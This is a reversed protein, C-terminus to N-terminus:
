QSNTCFNSCEKLECIFNYPNSCVIDNWVYNADKLKWIELCHEIKGANDPQPASFYTFNLHKGTSLWVFEGELGLDTGSTWVHDIKGHKQKLHKIIADNESKSEISLLSMGHDACFQLAQFYNAKFYTGFYYHKGELLVLPLPSHKVDENIMEELGHEYVPQLENYKQNTSVEDNIPKGRQNYKSSNPNERLSFQMFWQPKDHVCESFAGVSLCLMLLIVSMYKTTNIQCMKSYPRNM